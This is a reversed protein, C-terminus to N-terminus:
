NNVRTLRFVVRNDPCIIDCYGRGREWSTDDSFRMGMAVPYISAFSKACMGHPEPTKTGIVFVDEKKVKAAGTCASNNGAISLVECKIKYDKM